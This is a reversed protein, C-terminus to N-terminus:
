VQKEDKEKKQHIGRCSVAQIGQSLIAKQKATCFVEFL